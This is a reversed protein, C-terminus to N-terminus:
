KGDSINLYQTELSNHRDCFDVLDASGVVVNEDLDSILTRCDRIFRNIVNKRSETTELASVENIWANLDVKHSQIEEDVLSPTQEKTKPKTM